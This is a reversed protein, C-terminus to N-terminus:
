PCSYAERQTNISLNPRLTYGVLAFPGQKQAKISGNIPILPVWEKRSSNGGPSEAPTGIRHVWGM